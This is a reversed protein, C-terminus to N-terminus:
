DKRVGDYLAVGCETCRQVLTSGAPTIGDEAYRTARYTEMRPADEGPRPLCYLAHPHTTTTM